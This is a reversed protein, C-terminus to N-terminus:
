KDKCYLWSNLIPAINFNHSSFASTLSSITAISFKNSSYFDRLSSLFTAEGVLSYIHRFMLAGKQYVVATYEGESLYSSLPRQMTANFGVPSMVSLYDGYSSSIKSFERDFRAREGTLKYYYCTCFESLGEDLWASNIQDNGVAGYWWQHATEHVVIDQYATSSAPSITAFAGYEMGGAGDLPCEALAYTPYSYDGFTQSFVSIASAAYSLTASPSPDDTYFYSVDVDKTSLRVTQSLTSFNGIAMGFDRINEASIEYTKLTEGDSEFVEGEVISGSAAVTLSSDVTATVYFDSCASVFPDGIDCYPTKNWGDDYVALVPYFCCLSACSDNYGLRTSSRPLTVTYDFDVSILEGKQNCPLRLITSDDGFIEFQVPTRNLKISSFEIKGGEFANAYIRFILDDSSLDLPTQFLTQQRASLTHTSPFYHLNIDYIPFTADFSPASSNCASLAFLLVFAALAVLILSLFNKTKLFSMIKQM